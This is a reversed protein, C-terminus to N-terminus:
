RASLYREELVRRHHIEHGAIIWASARVSLTHTSAVGRREWAEPPLVRLLALTAARVASFEDLLWTFPVRDSQQAPTYTNEDFGPQPGADGRAFTLLRYTFIRETDSMHGIVEKISWKGEAYRYGSREESVTSLLKRTVGLSAELVGMVDGDPVVDIYTGFYPLFEGALPRTASAAPM